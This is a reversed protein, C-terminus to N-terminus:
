RQNESELEGFISLGHDKAAEIKKYTEEDVFYVQVGNDIVDDLVSPYEIKQNLLIFIPFIVM